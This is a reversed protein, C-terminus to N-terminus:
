NEKRIKETIKTTKKIFEISKLKIDEYSLENFITQKSKFFDAEEINKVLFLLQEGQGYDFHIYGNNNESEIYATYQTETSIINNNM